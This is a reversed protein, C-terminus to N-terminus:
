LAVTTLVAHYQWLSLVYLGISGFLFSLFLGGSVHDFSRQYTDLDSLPFLLLRKLIHHLSFQVDVHM